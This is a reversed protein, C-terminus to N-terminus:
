SFFSWINSTFNTRWHSTSIFLWLIKMIMGGSSRGGSARCQNCGPRCWKTQATWTRETAGRLLGAITEAAAFTACERSKWKEALLLIPSLDSWIDLLKHEQSFICTAGRGQRIRETVWGAQSRLLELGTVWWLQLNFTNHLTTVHFVTLFPVYFISM